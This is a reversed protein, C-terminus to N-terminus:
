YSDTCDVFEYSGNKYFKHINLDSDIRVVVEPDYRYKKNGKLEAELYRERYPNDSAFQQQLRRDKPDPYGLILAYRHLVKEINSGSTYGFESRHMTNTQGTQHYLGSLVIIEKEIHFISPDWAGYVVDAWQFETRRALQQIRVRERLRRIQLEVAQAATIHKSHIPVEKTYPTAMIKRELETGQRVGCDKAGGHKFGMPKAPPIIKVDHMVVESSKASASLKMMMTSHFLNVFLKKEKYFPLSQNVLRGLQNHLRYKDAQPLAEILSGVSQHALITKGFFSKQHSFIPSTLPKVERDNIKYLNSM